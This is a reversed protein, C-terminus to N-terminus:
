EGNVLEPKAVQLSKVGLHIWFQKQLDLKTGQLHLLGVHVGNYSHYHSPFSCRSQRYAPLKPWAPSVSLVDRGKGPATEEGMQM